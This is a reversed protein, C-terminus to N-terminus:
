VLGWRKRLYWETSVLGALLLLCLWAYTDGFRWTSQTEVEDLAPAAKIEHLLSSLQEPAIVKGGVRETTKALLDLLGPNAAPDSLEFDESLVVFESQRTAVVQGDVGRAKIELRYIGPLKTEEVIGNAIEGAQALSIERQTGDPLRLAAVLDADPVNDGNEDTLGAQFKIKGEARYRRQPLEVWVSNAQQTDRRALWLIAQRWFKKHAEQNGYRWWRSTSDGAFALVRGQDYGRQILLPDGNDTEALIQAGDKLEGLRNAGELPQLSKWTALNKAGPGLHTIPSDVTPLMQLPGDLHLDRRMPATRPQRDLRNMEIPLLSDLQSDAFGGPGFSHLGGYMMLGAGDGVLEAIRQWNDDRLVAREVDGILFVDYDEFAIDAMLDLPWSSQTLVSLPQFDLEIDPSKDLSWRLVRQEDHLLRTDMLLVRLGGERVTLFSIQENNEFVMEGSQEKAVARLRYQGPEEPRVTFEAMVTQGDQRAQVQTSGVPISATDTELFLQVLIAQNVYGQVRVGVRLALENKVFISYEDALSEISIDRSQSEDRSSGFAITYLPTARRDLQRAAQQPVLETSVVRQAGDSLLIVGALRKGVHRQLVARLANGIDTEEGLPKARLQIKGAESEQPAIDEAFSIVEVEISPGMDRLQPLSKKLIASQEDWRTKGADGDSIQMSRSADYLVILLSKQLRRDVTVIAPRLMALVLLLWLLGRLVLLWRQRVASLNGFSPRVLLVALSVVLLAGVLVYSGFIPQLQWSSTM